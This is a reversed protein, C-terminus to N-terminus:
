PIFHPLANDYDKVFFTDYDIKFYHTSLNQRVSNPISNWLRCARVSFFNRRSETHSHPIVLKAEAVSRSCRLNVDGTFSFWVSHEVHDLGQLLKFTQIADGRERRDKFSTLGLEKLKDEYHGKLGPIMKIMRKQVNELVDIDKQLWPNWLQVGHEMLSRVFTKYLNLLIDQNKFTFSRKIQGLVSNAKKAVSNVHPSFSLREDIIIGLDKM